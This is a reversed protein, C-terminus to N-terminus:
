TATATPPSITCRGGKRVVANGSSVLVVLLTLWMVTRGMRVNIADIVRSLALLANM